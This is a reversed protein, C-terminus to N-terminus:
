AVRGEDGDPPPNHAITKSLLLSLEHRELEVLKEPSRIKALLEDTRAVQALTRHSTFPFPDRPVRAM